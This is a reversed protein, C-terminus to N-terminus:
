GKQTEDQVSAALLSGARHVVSTLLETVLGAQKAQAREAHHALIAQATALVGFGAALTLGLWLRAQGPGRTLIFGVTTVPNEFNTRTAILQGYALYLSILSSVLLLLSGSLAGVAGLAAALLVFFIPDIIGFKQGTNPNANTAPVGTSAPVAAPPLTVMQSATLTLSAHVPQGQVTTPAMVATYWVEHISTFALAGAIIFPV